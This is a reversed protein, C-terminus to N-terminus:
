KIEANGGYQKQFISKTKAKPIVIVADAIMKKKAIVLSDMIFINGSMLARLNVIVVACLWNQQNVIIVNLMQPRSPVLFARLLWRM